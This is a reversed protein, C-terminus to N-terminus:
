RWGDSYINYRGGPKSVEWTSGNITRHNMRKLNALAEIYLRDVDPNIAKGYELSLERALMYVLLRDYGQPLDVDESLSAFSELVKWSRFYFANAQSPMPYFYFTGDTLTPDYFCRDPLNTTVTKKAYSDYTPADVLQVPYDIGNLRVYGDLIKFPRTTVLATGTPGVTYSTQNAVLNFTELPCRYAAMGQLSLSQLMQNLVALADSSDDSTATEGAGIVGLVRLSRNIIEQATSM